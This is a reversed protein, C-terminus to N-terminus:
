FSMAVGFDYVATDTTKNYALGGIMAAGGGLAYAAGLGYAVAANPPAGFKSDDAYFATLTLDDMRYTLSIAFQETVRRQRDQALRGYVAKITTRDFTTAAGMIVHSIRDSPTQEGEVGLSVVSAETAYRLGAAYAFPGSGGPQTASALVTLDGITARYLVSPDSTTGIIAPRLGGGGNAIYTLDNRDQDSILGVGAVQGVAMAAAGDVNGFTLRTRQTAIYVTGSRGRSASAADVLGFSAGFQLGNDTTGSLIFRIRARSTFAFGDTETNAIVGMRADGAVTIDAHASSSTALCVATSLLYKIM